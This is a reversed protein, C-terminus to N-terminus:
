QNSQVRGSMLYMWINADTISKSEVPMQIIHAWRFYSNEHLMGDIINEFNSALEQISDIRVPPLSQNHHLIVSILWHIPIYLAQECMHFFEGGTSHNAHPASKMLGVEDHMTDVLLIDVIFVQRCQSQQYSM